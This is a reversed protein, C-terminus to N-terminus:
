RSLGPVSVLANQLGMAQPVVGFLRELAHLVSGDIPLPEDPYDEYGLNLDLFPQLAAPRIWFMTGAPFVFQRPLASVGMYRALLQACHWNGDWGLLLPDDAFALGWQPHAAMHAAITDLMAGGHAGGLLNEMLFVRWQDVVRRDAHPSRKTHVHGILEYDRALRAGFTSLFPGIDRGRNPVIELASVRGAYDDLLARAQAQQAPGPVSVYLDPRTRNLHLRHLIDALMDPYYAHVHLAIRAIPAGGAPAPGASAGPLTGPRIVPLDWPGPPCGRALYHAFPTQEPPPPPEAQQAYIGPHFGARPKRAGMGCRWALTYLFAQGCTAQDKLSVIEGMYGPDLQGSAEIVAADARAQRDLARARECLALVHGAHAPWGLARWDAQATRAALAQRAEADGALAQLRRVLELVDGAPALCPEALGQAALTRAVEGSDQFALVPIGRSLAQLAPSRALELRAPLLLLDTRPPLAARTWEIHVRGDLGALALQERLTPLFGPDAPAGDEDVVWVFHWPAAPTGARLLAQACLMFVDLGGDYSAPGWGAVLLGQGSEDAEWPAATAPHAPAPPADRLPAGPLLAVSDPNLYSCIALAQRRAQASVFATHAAWFFLEQWFYIDDRYIATDPVLCAAPIGSGALAPLASKCHKGLVLATCDPAARLLPARAREVFVRALAYDERAAPLDAHAACAARLAPLRPADAAGLNWLYLNAHGQLAHATDDLCADVGRSQGAAAILLITPLAPDFPAGGPAFGPLADAAAAGGRPATDPAAVAVADAVAAADAAAAAVAIDHGAAADEAAGRVDGGPAPPTSAPRRRLWNRVRRLLHKALWWKRLERIELERLRIDEEQLHIRQAQGNLEIDRETLLANLDDVHHQLRRAVVTLQSAEAELLAARQRHLVAASEVQSRWVDAAQARTKAMLLRQECDLM